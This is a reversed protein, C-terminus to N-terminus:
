EPSDSRASRKWITEASFASWFEKLWNLASVALWGSWLFMCVRWVWLPLSFITISPLPDTSRDLYWRLTSNSSGYGLISMDPSGTLGTTVVAAFTMLTMATLVVLSVQALNFLHRNELPKRKRQAIAIFWLLPIIMVVVPLVLLGLGLLVWAIFSLDTARSRAIVFAAALIMILLGWYTFVPGWVPGRAWLVWRQAPIAVELNINASARGVIEPASFQQSFALQQAQTWRLMYQNSGPVIPLSLQGERPQIRSVVGGQTIEQLAAGEPLRINQFGAQSSRISLSLDQTILREGPTYKMSVADITATDGAIGAPRTVSIQVAENPWPAWVIASQGASITSIPTLGNTQCHFIASCELVWRESQGPKAPAALSIQDQEILTGQYQLETVGRPFNLIALGEEVKIEASTVSEGPLLAVKSIYSQQAAGQRRVTTTTTWPLGLTIKREILVWEPLSVELASKITDQEVKKESEQSLMELSNEVAGQQTIGDVLWGVADVAVHKPVMAFQILLKKRQQLPASYSIDHVGDPLRVWIFGREDRRLADTRLGNLRVEDTFIQDIPGPLAIASSGRSSANLHFQLQNASLQIRLDGITACDKQCRNRDMRQELEALLAAPPFDQAMAHLPLLLSSCMVVFAAAGKVFSAGLVGSRAVRIYALLLLVAVVTRLLSFCLSLFPTLLIFQVTTDKTVPGDWAITWQRWNWQPVGPGTTLQAKPDQTQLSESRTVKSRSLNPLSRKVNQSEDDSMDSAAGFVELSESFEPKASLQQTPAPSLSTQITDLRSSSIAQFLPLTIFFLAMAAVTILANRWQKKFICSVFIGFGALTVATSLFAIVSEILEYGSAASLLAENSALQPFLGSQVQWISFRVTILVLFFLSLYFYTSVFRRMFGSPLVRLLAVAAALHFFVLYPSGVQNHSLLLLLAVGVGILPSMVRASAIGIVLLLFLDLLSWQEVWGGPVQDAGLAALLTWGPPLNLALSLSDLDRDWSVAPMKGGSYEVRSDGELAISEARVEVGSLGSAPNKTILQDAGNIAARGLDTGPQMDIRWQDRLNGSLQDRVTFASGDLDLWFTRALQMSSRAVVEEGRRVEKLTLQDQDKILYTAHGQWDASLRTRSADIAQGGSLEVTRLEEHPFWVWIEESPWEALAARKSRLEKPAPQMLAVLDVIHNGPRVQITLSRDDALRVPLESNIKVVESGRLTFDGLNIERVKGAVTLNVRTTIMFPQEDELKRQVVVTLADDETLPLDNEVALWLQGSQNIKPHAISVGKIQLQLLATGRPVPLSEPISNWIFKGRIQYEGAKLFIVPTGARDIVRAQGFIRGARSSVEVQQPWAGRVGPLALEQARNLEASLEFTASTDRVDLDLRGPWQCQKGSIMLACQREPQQEEVWAIWPVLADPISEIGEQTAAVQADLRSVTTLLGILLLTLLRLCKM